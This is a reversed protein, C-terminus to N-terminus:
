IEVIEVKGDFEGTLSEAFLVAEEISENPHSSTLMEYEREGNRVVIEDIIAEVKACDEGVVGVFIVGGHIFEEVLVDLSPEYGNKCHLVIKRLYPV